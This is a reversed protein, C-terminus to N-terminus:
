RLIIFVGPTLLAIDALATRVNPELRRRFLHLASLLLTSTGICVAVEWNGPDRLALASSALGFFVLVGLLWIAARPFATALSIRRQAVDVYREWVAISVCNLACLGAFQLWLSWMASTLGAALPVMAGAAFLSGISIEKAPVVRWVGPAFRNVALYAAACVGIAAGLMLQRPELLTWIVVLNAVAVVGISWLWAVRHALCFRQRAASVARLDVTLADGFRDGLYILWATLFLALTGGASVPIGFSRAFLSQWSVAVLPADLCVLNLWMLPSHAGRGARASDGARAPSEAAGFSKSARAEIMGHVEDPM